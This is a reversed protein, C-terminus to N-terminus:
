TKCPEGPPSIFTKTAHDYTYGIGATVKNPDDYFTQVWEGGYQEVCWEAGNEIDSTLCIIQEVINNNLKAFYNM